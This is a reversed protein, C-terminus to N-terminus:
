ISYDLFAREREPKGRRLRRRDIWGFLWATLAGWTAPAAVCAAVYGLRAWDIHM